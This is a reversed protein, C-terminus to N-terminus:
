DNGASEADDATEPKDWLGKTFNAETEAKARAADTESEEMMDKLFESFDGNEVHHLFHELEEPDVTPPAVVTVNTVHKIVPRRKGEPHTDKYDHGTTIYEALRILEDTDVINRPKTSNGGFIGGSTVEPQGALIEQSDKLAQLRDAASATVAPLEVYM